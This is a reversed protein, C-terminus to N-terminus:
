IIIFNGTDTSREWKQQLKILIDAEANTVFNDFTVVFPDESLVTVGYRENFKSKINRFMNYMDFPKYIPSDSINLKNRNCRIKPDLLECKNCSKPCNVIMWGPNINCENNNKWINCQNHRDVCENKKIKRPTGQANSGKPILERIKSAKCFTDNPDCESTSIEEEEDNSENFEEVNRIENDLNNNNFLNYKSNFCTNCSKRCNYLMYNPNKECEGVSAWYKCNDDSDTCFESNFNDENIEEILENNNTNIIIEKCNIKNNNLIFNNLLISFLVINILM